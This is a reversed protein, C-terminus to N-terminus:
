GDSGLSILPKHFVLVDEHVVLHAPEGRARAKRTQTLQWFSPRAVLGGHRVAAHLAILHQLYGFGAQDALQVTVTALDNLRGARRTNKTVTVVLGGPRLLQACGALVEAIGTRWGQGRSRGLNAPDRSYNLSDRPCMSGGARWAPKDIVGADCAYPPSTVVLDVRGAVDALLDPLRRADGVRVEALAAQSPPLAHALNARALSAWRPELEVGVGWRGLAAAEVLTTGIGCMPDAVLGGTPCYEAVLRRALEPLMKGPHRSSAPLYRGARQYQASTQACPWVALPVLEAGTAPVSRPASVTALPM